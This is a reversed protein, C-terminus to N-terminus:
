YIKKRLTSLILGNRRVTVVDVGKFRDFCTKYNKLNDADVSKETLNPQIVRNTM